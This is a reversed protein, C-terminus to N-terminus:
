STLLAAGAGVVAGIATGWGPYGSGIKAGIAAGAAAGSLGGGIAKQTGSPGEEGKKGGVAAGSISAMVNGGSQYIQLPWLADKQAIKRNTALQESKTVINIRNAEVALNALNNAVSLKQEVMGNAIIAYGREFAADVSSVLKGESPMLSSLESRVGDVTDVTNIYDRFEDIASDINEVREDPNYAAKGEFPSNNIGQKTVTTLSKESVVEAGASGIGTGRLWNEHVDKMYGPYDVDGSSGGGGSGGCWAVEGSYEFSEEELVEGSTMDIVVREYIKM